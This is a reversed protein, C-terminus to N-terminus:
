APDDERSDDPEPEPGGCIALACILVEAIGAFALWARAERPGWEHWTGDDSFCGNPMPFTSFMRALIEAQQAALLPPGDIASMLHLQLQGLDMPEPESM